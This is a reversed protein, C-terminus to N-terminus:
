DGVRYLSMVADLPVSILGTHTRAHVTGMGVVAITLGFEGDVIALDGPRAHLRPQTYFRRSLVGEVNRAGDKDMAYLSSAVSNWTGRQDKIPDFGLVAECCDFAFCVCDSVGWVFPADQYAAIVEVLRKEADNLRISEIVRGVM